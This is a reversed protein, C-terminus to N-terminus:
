HARRGRSCSRASIRRPPRSCRSSCSGCSGTRSSARSSAAAPPSCGCGRRAPSRARRPSCAPRASAPAARSSPLGGAAAGRRTPWHRSRRSRPTASWFCPPEASPLVSAPAMVVLGTSGESGCNLPSNPQGRRSAGRGLGTEVALHDRRRLFFEAIVFRPSPARSVRLRPALVPLNAMDHQAAAGLGSGARRCRGM